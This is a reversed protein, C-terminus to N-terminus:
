LSVKRFLLFYISSLSQRYFDKNHLYSINDIARRAKSDSRIIQKFKDTVDTDLKDMINTELKVTEIKVNLFRDSDLASKLNGM